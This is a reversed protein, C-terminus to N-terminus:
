RTFLGETWKPALTELEKQKTEDYVLAKWEEDTM